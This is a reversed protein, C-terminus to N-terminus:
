KHRGNFWRRVFYGRAISIATFYLGILLNDSLAVQIGFLPFVLLQSIVAVVYGIVVSTITEAISQLKTQRVMEASKIPNTM